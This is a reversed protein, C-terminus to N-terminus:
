NEAKFSNLSTIAKWYANPKTLGTVNCSDGQLNLIKESCGRVHSDGVLVIRQVSTHRCM